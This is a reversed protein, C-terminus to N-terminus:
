SVPEAFSSAACVSVYEHVAVLPGLPTVNPVAFAAAVLTVNGEAPAYTSVNDTLSPESLAVSVTLTVTL